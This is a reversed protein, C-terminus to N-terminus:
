LRTDLWTPEEGPCYCPIQIHDETEGGIIIYENCKLQIEVEKCKCSM